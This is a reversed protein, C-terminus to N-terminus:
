VVSKRDEPKSMDSFGGIRILHNQIKRAKFDLQAEYDLAQLQCGGCPRACVCEPERRVPSPELVQTLRAYGYSKKVKMVKAEIVDGIVADKIFFTCGEYKGIGEGDVGMDEIRLTIIDNKKMKIEQSKIKIPWGVSLWKQM